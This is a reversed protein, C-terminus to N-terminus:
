HRSQRQRQQDNHTGCRQHNIPECQVDRSVFQSVGGFGGCEGGRTLQGAIVAQSGVEIRDRQLHFSAERGRADRVFVDDRTLRQDQVRAGIAINAEPLQRGVRIGSLRQERFDFALLFWCRHHDVRSPSRISVGGDRQRESHNIGRCVRIDDRHGFRREVKM